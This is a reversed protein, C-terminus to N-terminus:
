CYLENPRIKYEMNYRTFAHQHNEQQVAEQMQFIMHSCGM